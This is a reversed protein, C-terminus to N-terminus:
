KWRVHKIGGTTVNAARALAEMRDDAAASARKSSRQADIIQTLSETLRVDVKNRYFDHQSPVIPCSMYSCLFKPSFSPPHVNYKQNMEALKSMSSAVAGILVVVMADVKEASREAKLAESDPPDILEMKTMMAEIQRLLSHNTETHTRWKLDEFKSGADVMSSHDNISCPPLNAVYKAILILRAQFM